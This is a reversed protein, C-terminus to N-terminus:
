VINYKTLKYRLSRFSMGLLKAAETKNNNTQDLAAELANKEERVLFDEINQDGPVFRKLEAIRIKEALYSVLESIAFLLLSYKVVLSYSQQVQTEFVILSYFHEFLVLIIAGSALGLAQIRPLVVSGMAVVALYLLAFNSEISGTCHTLLAALVVDLPFQLSVLLNFELEKHKSLYSFLVASILILLTSAIFLKPQSTVDGLHWSSDINPAIAFMLLGLGLLYRIINLTYVAKWIDQKFTGQPMESSDKRDPEAQQLRDLKDALDSNAIAILDSHKRNM